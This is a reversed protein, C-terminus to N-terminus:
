SGPQVQSFLMIVFMGVFRQLVVMFVSMILVVLMLMIDRYRFAGPVVMHMPMLRQHVFM